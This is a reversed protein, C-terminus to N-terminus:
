SDYNNSSRHPDFLTQNRVLYNKTKNCTWMKIGKSKIKNIIESINEEIEIHFSIIDSGAEIYNDIYKEVKNIMLHVDFVKDSCNRVDSIFKPGFTLNPVFDGDM